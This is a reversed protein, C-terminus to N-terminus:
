QPARVLSLLEDVDWQDDAHTGYKSARVIGEGDVLFDAPLGIMGNEARRYFRRQTLVWRAGNLVVRPHFLSRLSKQVGWRRYHHMGADAVCDFPLQAQYKMMEEPTSHFFVIQHVGAAEIEPQRKAMTMLHFNCVPCGAFRRFQLHVWRARGGPVSVPLGHITTADLSPARAGPELLNM